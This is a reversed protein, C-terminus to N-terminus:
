MSEESEYGIYYYQLLNVKKKSAIELLNQVFVYPFSVQAVLSGYTIKLQLTKKGSIERM